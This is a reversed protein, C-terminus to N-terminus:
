QTKHGCSVLGTACCFVGLSEDLDFFFVHRWLVLREGAVEVENVVLVQLYNCRHDAGTAVVERQIVGVHAEVDPLAIELALRVWKRVLGVGDDDALLVILGLCDVHPAGVVATPDIGRTCVTRCSQVKVRPGVRHIILYTQM